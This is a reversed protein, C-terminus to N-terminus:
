MGPLIFRAPGQPDTTPAINQGNALSWGVVTPSSSEPQWPPLPPPLPPVPPLGAARRRPLSTDPM